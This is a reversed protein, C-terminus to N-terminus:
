GASAVDGPLEDATEDHPLVEEDSEGRDRASRVLGPLEGTLEPDFLHLLGAYLALGFVIEGLLLLVGLAQGHSAADVLFLQLALTAFSAILAAILQPAIARALEIRRISFIESAKRMAYLVGALAGISFGAAVGVLDFPLLALMAVTGVGVEFGHLRVLLEPRGAAKFGEAIPAVLSRSATLLCLAMAAEGAGAWRQGFILIAAPKGLALLMFGAPMAIVAMWRLARLFAERLRGQESAIRAFAPFIVYSAAAVLLGFPTFAMRAAYRYLGLPAAGLFRGIITTPILDGADIVAASIFVHRGYRILERWMAVSAQRLRPRWRVLAWSLIFDTSASAYAGIVLSWVGLGNTAGIVAATGYALAAAPEAVMRRLFSFRRQLLANPVVAAARLLLVGAVVAAVDRVTDSRFILGLLPAAALALLSLAVGSLVTSVVATSAAEDIRDRRHILAALMGSDTFLMGIGLLISGAAFHGFDAPDLLRALVLSFGLTTAVTLAYGVAALSAGRVVTGTMDGEPAPEGDRQPERPADSM